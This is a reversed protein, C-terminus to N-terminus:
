WLQAELSWDNQLEAKLAMEPSTKQDTEAVKLQKRCVLNGGMKHESTLTETAIM